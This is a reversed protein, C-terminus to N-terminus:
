ELDKYFKRRVAKNSREIMSLCGKSFGNLRNKYSQEVIEKNDNFYDLLKILKKETVDPYFNNFIKFPIDLSVCALKDYRYEFKLYSIIPELEHRLDSYIANQNDSM